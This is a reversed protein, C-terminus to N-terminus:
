QNKSVKNGSDYAVHDVLGWHMPMEPGQRVIGYLKQSPNCLYICLM